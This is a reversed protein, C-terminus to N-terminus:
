HGKSTNALAEKARQIKRLIEQGEAKWVYRKPDSNVQRYLASM